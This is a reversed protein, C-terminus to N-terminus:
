NARADDASIRRLDLGGNKHYTYTGPYKKNIRRAAFRTMRYWEWHPVPQAVSWVAKNTLAQDFHCVGGCVNDRRCEIRAMVVGEDVVITWNPSGCKSCMYCILAGPSQLALGEKSKKSM